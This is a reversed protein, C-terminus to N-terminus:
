NWVGDIKESCFKCKSKEINNELVNYGRRDILLKDCKPCYTSGYKNGPVNGIYAYKIGAEKAIKHANELVSVPTVPLHTLKYMPSFRSFHLPFHHLDNDYLWNCMRKIMDLDDAWQPIVLNTIEVWVKEQKLIKLTNLVHKLEGKTLDFHKKEDFIKLDINAADIFKCIDRLPKENIYGNSVLVNDIKKEHALKASDFMYEYFVVPESYTYSISQCNNKKAYAVLQEPWLEHNRTETPSVQSISWNQCNLCRFNCGAIALSLSKTQPKFHLLPKKEIPDINLSCPNAYGISYLIGKYNVKNNCFGGKGENIICKHPCVGCIVSTGKKEYYFVEKSWKWPTDARTNLKSFMNNYFKSHAYIKHTCLLGAGLLSFKLFARKSIKKM